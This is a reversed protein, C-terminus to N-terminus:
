PAPHIGPETTMEMNSPTINTVSMNTTPAPQPPVPIETAVKTSNAVTPLVTTPIAPAPPMAGHAATWKWLHERNLNIGIYCYLSSAEPEQRLKCEENYKFMLCYHKDEIIERMVLTLQHVITPKSVCNACLAHCLTYRFLTRWHMHCAYDVAIGQALQKLFFLKAPDSAHMVKLVTTGDDKIDLYYSPITLPELQAQDKDTKVSDVMTQYAPNELLLKM